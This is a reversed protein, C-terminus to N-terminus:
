ELMDEPFGVVFITSIDDQVDGAGTGVGGAAGIVGGSTVAGRASAEAYGARVYGGRDTPIERERRALLGAGSVGGGGGGGAASPSPAYFGERSASPSMTTSTPGGVSSAGHLTSTSEELASPLSSAYPIISSTAYVSPVYPTPNAPPSFASQPQSPSSAYDSFRQSSSHSPQQHQHPHQSSFPQQGSPYNRLDLPPINGSSGFGGVSSQSSQQPVIADAGDSKWENLAMTDLSVERERPAREKGASGPPAGWGSHGSASTAPSFPEVLPSLPSMMGGGGGGAVSGLSSTSPHGSLVTASDRPHFYSSSHSSTLPPAFSTSSSATPFPSYTSQQQQQQQINRLSSSSSSAPLLPPSSPTAERRRRQRDEAEISDRRQQQQLYPDEITPSNSRSADTSLGLGQMMSRAVRETGEEDESLRRERELRMSNGNHSQAAHMPPRESRYATYSSTSHTPTPRPGLLSDFGLAAETYSSNSAPGRSSSAESGPGSSNNSYTTHRPHSPSSAISSHHSDSSSPPPPSFSSFQQASNSNYHASRQFQSASSSSTPSLPRPDRAPSQERPLFASRHQSSSSSSSAVGGGAGAGTTTTGSTSIATSPRSRSSSQSRKGVVTADGWGGLSGSYDGTSAAAPYSPGFDDPPRERDWAPTSSPPLYSSPLPPPAPVPNMTSHPPPPRPPFTFQGGARGPSVATRHM